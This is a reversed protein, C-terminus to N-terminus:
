QKMTAVVVDDIYEHCNILTELLQKSDKMYVEIMGSKYYIVVCESEEQIKM